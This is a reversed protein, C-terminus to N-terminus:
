YRQCMNDTTHIEVSLLKEVHLTAFFSIQRLLKLKVFNKYPPNLLRIPIQSNEGKNLFLERGLHLYM